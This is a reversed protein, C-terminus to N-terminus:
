HLCKVAFSWMNCEIGQEIPLWHLQDRIIGSIHDYKSRKSIIRTAANLVSQPPHLHKARMLSFVSNCYDVHSSVNRPGSNQIRWLNTCKEGIQAPTIPLFM